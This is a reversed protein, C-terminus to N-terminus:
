HKQRNHSTEEEENDTLYIIEDLEEKNGIKEQFYVCNKLHNKVQLKKNTFTNKLLENNELKEICAICAAYTNCSNQKGFVKIYKTLHHTRLRKM